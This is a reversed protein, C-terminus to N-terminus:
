EDVMEDYGLIREIEGKTVPLATKTQPWVENELWVTLERTRAAADVAHERDLEDLKEIALARVAGTKTTGLRKAVDAVLAVTYEDKLNLGMRM